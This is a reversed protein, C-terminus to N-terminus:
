RPPAPPLLVGPHVGLGGALKLLCANSTERRGAEIRAVTTQHLGARRALAAQTLGLTRRQAALVQGFLAARGRDHDTLPRPPQMM